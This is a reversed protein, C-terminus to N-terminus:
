EFLQLLYPLVSAIIQSYYQADGQNQLYGTNQFSNLLSLLSAPNVQNAGGGNLAQLALQLRRDALNPLQQLLNVGQLNRGEDTAQNQQFLAALQAGVQAAQQAQGAQLQAANAAFGGQLQTHLQEFQNDLQMMAQEYIGDGPHLGRAALRNALNQRAVDRQRTLPDLAQTQLIDMQQPSYVPGQLQQFYHQMYDLLPQLYPNQQPQQLQTSLSTLAQEWQSTAPDTFVGAGSAGASGGEGSGPQAVWTWSGNNPDGEIVRVWQGNPLGIKTVQHNANEPSLQIGYQALFPKLGVLTQSNAALGNQSVYQQFFQQLDTPNPTRPLTQPVNPYPNPTPGPTTTPPAPNSPPAPVPTPSPTPTPVPTPSPPPPKPTSSSGDDPRLPNVSQPTSVTPLPASTPLSTQSEGQYFDAYPNKRTTGTDLSYLAM